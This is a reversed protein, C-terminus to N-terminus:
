VIEGGVKKFYKSYDIDGVPAIPFHRRDLKGRNGYPRAYIQMGCLEIICLRENPVSGLAVTCLVKEGVKFPRLYYNAIFVQRQKKYKQLKAVRANIEVIDAQCKKVKEELTLEDSM